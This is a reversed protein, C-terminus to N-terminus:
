FVGRQGDWYCIVLRFRGTAIDGANEREKRHRRSKRPKEKGANHNGYYLAQVFKERERKREEKHFEREAKRGQILAHLAERDAAAKKHIAKLDHETKRHIAAMDRETKKELSRIPDHDSEESNTYLESDSEEESDSLERSRWKQSPKSLDVREGPKIGHLLDGPVRAVAVTTDYIAKHFPNLIPALLSGKPYPEAATVLPGDVSRSSYHSKKEKFVKKTRRTVDPPYDDSEGSFRRSGKALIVSMRRPHFFYHNWAMLYDGIPELKNQAMRKQIKPSPIKDRMFGGAMGQFLRDSASLHATKQFDKLFKHWDDQTVDHSVFPHQEGPTTVPPILAFGDQLKDSVALVSMPLFKIYAYHGPAPRRFMKPPPDLPNKSSSFWGRELGDPGPPPQQIGTVQM